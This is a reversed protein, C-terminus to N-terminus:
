RIWNGAADYECTTIETKDPEAPRPHTQVSTIVNGREDYRYQTIREIAGDPQESVVKAVHGTDDYDYRQISVIQENGRITVQRVQGNEHYQVGQRTIHRGRFSGYELDAIVRNRHDYAYLHLSSFTRCRGAHANM